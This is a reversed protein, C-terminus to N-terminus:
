AILERIPSAEPLIPIPRDLEDRLLLNPQIGLQHYLTALIEPVSVPRGAPSEGLATTGGLVQGRTLGGGALMVSYAYTWHDRGAARNITPTRGMEGSVLVLVDDLMGRQDLDALLASVARDM